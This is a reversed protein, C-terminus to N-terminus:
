MSAPMFLLLLPRSGGVSGYPLLPERALENREDDGPLLVGSMSALPRGVDSETM